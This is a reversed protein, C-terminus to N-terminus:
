SSFFAAHRLKLGQRQAKNLGKVVLNYSNDIQRQIEGPPLTGDLRVTNWHTKNMHYGPMVAEFVDRLERAEVPDCKLNVCIQGQDVRCLAFMKGFIKYVAADPGFPYDLETEPLNLLYRKLAQEKM